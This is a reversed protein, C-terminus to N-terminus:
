FTIINKTNGDLIKNMNSLKYIYNEYVEEEVSGRVTIINQKVDSSCGTRYIRGLAQQLDYINDSPSIYSIRPHKGVKDHLSIGVGAAKINVILVRLEDNQFKRIVEDRNSSSGSIIGVKHESLITSLIKISASYNFMVVVSMGNNLDNLINPVILKSKIMEILQKLRLRRVLPSEVCINIECELNELAKIDTTNSLLINEAELLYDVNNTSSSIKLDDLILYLKNIKKYVDEILVLKVDNIRNVLVDIMDYTIRVGPHDKEYFIINHLRILHVPNNDFELGKFKNKKYGFKMLFAYENCTYGFAKAVNVFAMPSDAITASLLYPINESLNISLLLNSIMTKYGKLRHAEDFLIITDTVTWKNDKFLESNGIKLQEYNIVGLCCKLNDYIDVQEKWHSIVIKPCVIVFKKATKLISYLSIFTKGAGVVSCDIVPKGNILRNYIYDSAAKQFDYLEIMKVAIKDEM